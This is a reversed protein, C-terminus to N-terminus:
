LHAHSRTRHPPSVRFVCVADAAAGMGVGVAGILEWSRGIGCSLGTRINRFHSNKPNRALFVRRDISLPPEIRSEITKKKQDITLQLAVCTCMRLLV